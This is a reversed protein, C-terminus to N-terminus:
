TGGLKLPKSKASFPRRAVASSPRKRTGGAAKRAGTWASKPRSRAAKASGPGGFEKSMESYTDDMDDMMHTMMSQQRQQLRNYASTQTMHAAKLNEYDRLKEELERNRSKIEGVTLKSYNHRFQDKSDKPVNMKKLIKVENQLRSRELEYNKETINNRHESLIMRRVRKTLEEVEKEKDKLRDRYYEKIHRSEHGGERMNTQIEEKILKEEEEKKKKKERMAALFIKEYERKMKANEKTLTNVQMTLRQNETKLKSESKQLKSLQSSHQKNKKELEGVRQRNADKQLSTVKAATLELAEEVDKKSAKVKNFHALQREYAQKSKFMESKLKNSDFQHKLKAKSIQSELQTIRMLQIERNRLIKDRTDLKKNLEDIVSEGKKMEDILRSNDKQLRRLKMNSEEITDRKSQMAENKEQIAKAANVRYEEKEDELERCKKKLEALRQEATTMKRHISDKLENEYDEKFAILVRLCAKLKDLIIIPSQKKLEVKAAADEVLRLQEHKERVVETSRDKM